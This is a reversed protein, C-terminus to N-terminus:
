RYREPLAEPLEEALSAVIDPDELVGMRRAMAGLKRVKTLAANKLATDLELRTRM